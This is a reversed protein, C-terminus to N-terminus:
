KASPTQQKSSAQQALVFCRYTCRQLCVWVLECLSVRVCVPLDRARAQAILRIKYSTLQGLSKVIFRVISPPVRVTPTGHFALRFSDDGPRQASQLRLHAAPDAVILTPCDSAKFAPLMLLFSSARAPYASILYFHRVFEWIEWTDSYLWLRSASLQDHRQITKTTAMKAVNWLLRYQLFPLKVVITTAICANNQIQM